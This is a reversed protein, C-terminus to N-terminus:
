FKLRLDHSYNEATRKCIVTFLDTPFLLPSRESCIYSFIYCWIYLIQVIKPGFFIFCSGEGSLIMKLCSQTANTKWKVILIILKKYENM